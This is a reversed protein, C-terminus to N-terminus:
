QKEKVLHEIGKITEEGYFVINLNKLILKVDDLTKIKDIDLVYEKIACQGVSITPVGSCQQIFEYLEKLKDQKELNIV